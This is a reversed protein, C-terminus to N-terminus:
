DGLLRSHLHYNIKRSIRIEYTLENILTSSNYFKKNEDDRYMTTRAVIKQSSKLRIIHSKHFTFFTAQTTRQNQGLNSGFQSFHPNRLFDNIIFAGKHTSCRLWWKKTPKSHQVCWFTILLHEVWLTANMIFSKKLFGFKLDHMKKLSIQGSSLTTWAIVTRWSKLRGVM